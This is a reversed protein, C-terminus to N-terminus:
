PRGGDSAWCDLKGQGEGVVFALRILAIVLFLAAMWLVVRLVYDWLASRLNLWGVPDVGEQRLAETRDDLWGRAGGPRTPRARALAGHLVALVDNGEQRGTIRLHSWHNM